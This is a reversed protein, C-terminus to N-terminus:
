NIGKLLKCRPVQVFGSRVIGLPSSVIGAEMLSALIGGNESYDKIFVEDSELERDPLNVSAMAIPEGGDSDVLELAKRGNVYQQLLVDCNWERFKCTGIKKNFFDREM